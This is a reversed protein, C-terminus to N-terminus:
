VENPLDVLKWMDGVIKDYEPPTFDPAGGAPFFTMEGFYVRGDALYLDVRVFQFPRCLDRAMRTMADLKEPKPVYVDPSPPLDKGFPLLNWGLDYFNQVKHHSNRGCTVQLFRPEGNFCYFKYDRLEGSGDELYAEAIIHRPMHLYVWERGGWAINQDMWSNLMLAARKRNFAAKNKVIYNMGSGHSAKLVFQDPLMDYDIESSSQYVGLLTNLTEGYGKQEVYERVALKDACTQMLILKAHLKYWQQKESFKEPHELDPVYGARKRYYAKVAKEDSIIRPMLRSMLCHYRSILYGGWFSSRIASKFSM